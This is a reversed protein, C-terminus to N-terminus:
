PSLPKEWCSLAIPHTGAIIRFGLSQIARRFYQTNENLRDILTTDQGLINLSEIAATVTGPPLSNSFMYPRAKQRLFGVIERTGALYGGAAGGLAKGLTGSLVDIKGHIGLAEATGRGTPGVVGVGHSDDVFLTHAHRDALEILDPLPAFDGEMSFVGDTAIFGYRYPASNGDQQLTKGLAGADAHEYIKRDVRSSRCLRTADIISAHNLRDSYIVDTYDDEGLGENVIAAFFAENAAYCSSFLISDQTGLFEALKEELRRHITQTGCIFRVSAVGYGYERIGHIAADTIRPDSALGLYNNSALMVVEQADVRVRAGQPSDILTEEKFTHTEKLRVLEAALADSLKM